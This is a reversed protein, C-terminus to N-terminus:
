RLEMQDDVAKFVVVHLGLREELQACEIVCCQISHQLREVQSLLNRVPQPEVSKM